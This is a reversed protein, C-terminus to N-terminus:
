SAEEPTTPEDDARWRALAEAIEPESKGERRLKQAIRAEDMTMVKRATHLRDRTGGRKGAVPHTAEVETLTSRRRRIEAEVDRFREPDALENALLDEFDARALRDAPVWSTRRQLM